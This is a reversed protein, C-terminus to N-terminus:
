LDCGKIPHHNEPEILIITGCNWQRQSKDLRFCAFSDGKSYNRRVLSAMSSELLRHTGARPRMACDRVIELLAKETDRDFSAGSREMHEGEDCIEPGLPDGNREGSPEEGEAEQRNLGACSLRSKEVVSRVMWEDTANVLV